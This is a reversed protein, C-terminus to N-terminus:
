PQLSCSRADADTPLRFWRIGVLNEPATRGLAQVFQLVRAPPAGLLEGNNAGTLLPREGEVSALRGDARWTVRVDYAPVAVRFPRRIRRGFDKVWREAQEPNFLGRRLDDVAHVQLVVEDLDRTLRELEASNM